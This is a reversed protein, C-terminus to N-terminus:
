LRLGAADIDSFAHENAGKIVDTLRVWPQASGIEVSFVNSPDDGLAWCNLQLMVLFHHLGRFILETTKVV